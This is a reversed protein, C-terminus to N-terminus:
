KADAEFKAKLILADKLDNIVEFVATQDELRGRPTEIFYETEESLRLKRGVIQVGSGYRAQWTGDFPTKSITVNVSAGFAERIADQRNERERRDYDAIAAGILQEWWMMAWRRQGEAIGADTLKRQGYRLTRDQSGEVLGAQELKSLTTSNVKSGYSTTEWIKGEVHAVYAARFAREQADALKITSTNPKTTM